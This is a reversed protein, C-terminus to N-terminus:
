GESGSVYYIGDPNFYVVNDCPACFGLIRIYAGNDKLDKANTTIASTTRSAYIPLAAGYNELYTGSSKFFGKLLIGQSPADGLAVGLLQTGGADNDDADTYRWDTGSLFMLRGAGFTNGEIANGFTVIDGTGSDSGLSCPDNVVKLGTGDWTLDADGELTDSNTWVALQNNVPTGTTHVDGHGILEGDAYFSSASVAASASLASGNFTLDAGGEITSSNTWVSVYNNAPTGSVSVDGTGVAGAPVFFSSASITMSASLGGTVFVSGTVSTASSSISLPSRGKLVSTEMEPSEIKTSASLNPIGLKSAATDYFLEVKDELAGDTGVVVLRTQTLDAVKFSHVILDTGDFRVKASGTLTGDANYRLAGDPGKEDCCDTDGGSGSLKLHKRLFALLRARDFVEPIPGTTM